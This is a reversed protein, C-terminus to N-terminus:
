KKTEVDQGTLENWRNGEHCAFEYIEYEKPARKWIGYAVKWPRTFINADEITAEYDINDADRMIYRETMKLAPSHFTGVSMGEGGIEGIVWTKDTFNTVDVVLTNGEWHGRSDGQWLQIDKGPHPANDINIVRYNHNHEQLFVVKGPPQLVMWGNYSSQFGFRPGAPLCRVRSDTFESKELWNDRVYDRKALAWPQFPVRGNAPDTVMVTGPKPQYPNKSRLESETWESGYAGPNKGRYKEMKAEWAKREEPTWRENPVSWGSVYTGQMDPQGDALKKATWKSAKSTAGSGEDQQAGIPAVFMALVLAAAVAVAQRSFQRKM